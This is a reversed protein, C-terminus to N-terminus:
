NVEPMPEGYDCVLIEEFSEFLLEYLQEEQETPKYERLANYIIQVDEKELYIGGSVEEEEHESTVEDSPTDDAPIFIVKTRRVPKIKKQNKGHKKEQPMSKTYVIREIKTKSVRRASSCVYDWLFRYHEERM